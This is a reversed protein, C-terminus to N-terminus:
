PLPRDFEVRTLRQLESRGVISTAATGAYNATLASMREVVILNPRVERAGAGGVRLGGRRAVRTFGIVASRVSYCDKGLSPGNVEVAETSM